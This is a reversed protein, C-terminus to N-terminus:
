PRLVLQWQACLGVVSDQGASCTEYCVDLSVVAAHDQCGFGALCWCCSLRGQEMCVVWCGLCGEPSRQEASSEGGRVPRMWGM